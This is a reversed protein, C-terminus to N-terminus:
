TRRSGPSWPELPQDAPWLFGQFALSRVTDLGERRFEDADRGLRAAVQALVGSVALHGRCLTLLHFVTPNFDGEFRLGGDLTCEAEAVAWGAGAPELRQSITLDPRCRLTTELLDGDEQLRAMMDHAAFGRLITAGCYHDPNRDRDIRVWNRGGSRRRLSIFGAEVADIRNQEYYTMWREFADAFEQSASLGPQALWHQAYDGPDASYSHVIWVDCGSGELWGSLREVWDQGAIRVWNCMVQAFGGEALHGPAGRLIRECIADGQLGSDRYMLGAQPSVVFPPNSSILDFQLDGAPEFLSGHATEINELRNLMANFRAMAVARPNLDTALVRRSHEAALLALYGSGTGLDLTWRSPPRVLM